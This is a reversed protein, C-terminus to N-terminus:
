VTSATAVEPGKDECTLLCLIYKARLMAKQTVAPPKATPAMEPPSNFGATPKPIEVNPSALGPFDARGGRVCRIASEQMSIRPPTNAATTKKKVCGFSRSGVADSSMALTKHSNTPVKTKTKVTPHQTSVPLPVQFAVAMAETSMAITKAVPGTDPPLKFGATDNESPREPTM